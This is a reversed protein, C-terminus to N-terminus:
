RDGIPCRPGSLDRTRRSFIVFRDCTVVTVPRLPM